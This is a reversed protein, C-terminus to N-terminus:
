RNLREDNAGIGKWTSSVGMLSAINAPLTSPVSAFSTTGASTLRYANTFISAGELAVSQADHGTGSRFADLSKYQTLGSGNAWCMFTSPVSSSARHYGNGKFVLNMDEATMKLTNDLVVMPCGANGFAVANNRFTIAKTVLATGWQAARGDDQMIRLSYKANNAVTNNWVDVYSSDLLKIGVGRNEVSYNNVMKVSSSIEVSLGDTENRYATNGAITVNTSKEDLWLGASDLNGEFLNNTFSSDTLKSTHIGAPVPASNFRQRNNFSVDSNQFTVGSTAGIGAGLLGNETITLRNFSASKGWAYLGITANQTIVLNELTLDAVEASIAGFQCVTTAYRRIGFGRLTSGAGHITIAKQLTSAKVKKGSPNSGLVLQKATADVFFKGATVASASAVQTQPVDDIWVQEPYGALPYDPNVWSNSEDKGKAFSVKHDFGYTWSTRWTSGSATWDSITSAGDFWVAERPYAQIVLKKYFPVEVSEHYTGGRLVLTSGSSAKKLATGVSGYPHALSGDGEPTGLPAVYIAGAPVAYSASGVPLSGVGSSASTSSPQSPVPTATPSATPTPNPTPKAATSADAATTLRLAPAKSGTKYFRAKGAGALNLALVTTNKVTSLDGLKIAIRRGAKLKGSTGLKAGVAPATKKTIGAIANADVARVEVKKSGSASKPTVLLEAKTLRTLDVGSLGFQVFGRYKSKSVVIYTSKANDRKPAGSNTHTSASALVTTTSEAAAVAASPSWLPAVFLATTGLAVVALHRVRQVARTALPM